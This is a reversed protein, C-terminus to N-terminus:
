GNRKLTNIEKNILSYLEEQEAQSEFAHEADLYCVKYNQRSFTEIIGQKFKIPIHTDNRSVILVCNVGEPAISDEPNINWEKPYTFGKYIALSSRNSFPNIIIINKPRIDIPVINLMHWALSAGYSLGIWIPYYKRSLNEIIYNYQDQGPTAPVLDFPVNMFDIVFGDASLKTFIWSLETLIRHIGPWYYINKDM